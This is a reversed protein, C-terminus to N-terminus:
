FYFKFALQVIRRGYKRNKPLVGFDANSLIGNDYALKLNVNDDLFRQPHNFVNTLSARFQFKRTDTLKFNKFLGFDHNMYAPGRMDPMIYGGNHGPTPLTFCTPNIIQDGSLGSTPDCTLVPMAAISPSGTILTDSITTGNALTGTLGFNVSPGSAQLPAGSIWTSVGTFQWGGAVARLVPNRDVDPLLWSYGVNVVHRRDYALIGYASNRIDGPPQTTRGQENGRIGLAKSLTYATTFSFRSGQRSLLTQLANYNQYHTHRVVPLDGYQSLPRYLNPDGNPDNLMAGFPVSNFNNLGSNLLHDSKSGVYGAEIMMKFPIRQQITMSWSQTRPQKNDSKLIAGSLGPQKSPDVTSVQSLLMNSATTNTVGYPLDIFGSYPGQADHFNFVGYGGRLLTKGTGFVDYALGVRPAWFVPQVKVGSLPVSSDRGTWTVGPFPTGAPAAALLAPDFVAMGKGNRETWGGLHSVRLGYELTLRNKAKWSDQAFGEVINYAMNHVVNPSQEDYEALTGTLLDSFYNGSSGSGWPAPVILGNSNGNGPQSNNVWEYYAGAKMTHAGAVKTLNQAGSVLWKKAFLVPDFGGPNFLTPGNGWNLMSPIQDLGSKYIGQNTYGLASRSVRSPDQFQNPFNIYTTAFTSETTLSSGFIKTLSLTGSHSRNPATVATPYPVQAANRWWLGVPFNQEEAQLNYRAFVRTNNSVNMDVRTLWQHMNQSIPVNQVYNYGDTVAPDTNPLPFLNILKQGNPDILSTPIRGNELNTPTTSVYGNSLKSFSATNSFDGQRMAQTPVWSQLTGTDLRQRYFEYGTFFFVRDRNKNFNTGPILLPGGINFGPYTFQNKPKNEPGPVSSFRNLLWENSNLRYDRMYTYAMGHFDRGGAKSVADITIPGKAHEAGYNAQLVKFEGVMDPNPNVSTACNCGPDSAHAGDIVIDLADVRTGNGSFNGVASQKGGDGNGNIGIVEGNFGPRNSTGDSTPTMGPLLKLLEATSRGVMPVNQIQESTLRASKEGSSLSAIEPRATVSVTESLAGVHLKIGSLARREGLRLAIDTAEWSSFSQLEIKVSYTGAGVAAFVFVGDANTTTHQVAKSTQDTLTVDAGPLAGGQEDLVTGSITGFLSQAHSAGAFWLLFALFLICRNSRRLAHWSM